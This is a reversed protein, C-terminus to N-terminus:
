RDKGGFPFDPYITPKGKWRRKVTEAETGPAEYVGQGPDMDDSVDEPRTAQYGKTWDREAM